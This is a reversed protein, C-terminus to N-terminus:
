TERKLIARSELLVQDYRAELAANCGRLGTVVRTAWELYAVLRAHPWDAPPDRVIDHVNDIKDALKILKAQASIHPAHEVQLQKRVDKPLAKDDSVEQVLVRVDFGFHQELEAATADTDELTDHLVAAVLTPISRVQGVEWLLTLVHILHNVYPFEDRGKRRQNRHKTAAFNLARFVMDM